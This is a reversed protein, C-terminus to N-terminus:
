DKKSTQSSQWKDHTMCVCVSAFLSVEVRGSMECNYHRLIPQGVNRFLLCNRSGRKKPESIVSNKTLCKLKLEVQKYSPTSLSFHFFPFLFPVFPHSGKSDVLEEWIVKKKSGYPKERGESYM